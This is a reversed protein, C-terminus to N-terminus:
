RRSSSSAGAMAMAMMLREFRAEAAVPDAWAEDGYLGAAKIMEKMQDEERAPDRDNLNLLLTLQEKMTAHRSAKDLGGITRSLRSTLTMIGTLLSSVSM